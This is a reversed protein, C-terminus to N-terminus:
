RRTGRNVDDVGVAMDVVRELERHPTATDNRNFCQGRCMDAGGIRNPFQGLMIRVIGPDMDLDYVIKPVLRLHTDAAKVIDRVVLM